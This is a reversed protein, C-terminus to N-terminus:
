SAFSTATLITSSTSSRYVQLGLGRNLIPLGVQPGSISLERDDQPTSGDLVLYKYRTQSMFEELFALVKLSASFILVKDNREYWVRLLERLIQNRNPSSSEGASPALPM